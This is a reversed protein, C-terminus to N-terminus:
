HYSEADMVNRCDGFFTCISIEFTKYPCTASFDNTTWQSHDGQKHCTVATINEIRDFGDSPLLLAIHRRDDNSSGRQFSSVSLNIDNRDKIKHQQKYAVARVYPTYNIYVM